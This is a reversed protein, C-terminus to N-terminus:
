VRSRGRSSHAFSPEIAAASTMEWTPGRGRRSSFVSSGHSSFWQGVGFKARSGLGPQHRFRIRVHALLQTRQQVPGVILQAFAERTSQLETGSTQTRGDAYARLSHITQDHLLGSGAEDVVQQGVNGVNGLSTHDDAEVHTALAIRECEVGSAHACGSAHLRQQEILDHRRRHQCPVDGLKASCRAHHDRGRVVRGGVVSVLDVETGASLNHRGGVGVNRRANILDIRGGNFQRSSVVQEDRVEASGLDVRIQGGRRGGAQQRIKGTDGGRVGRHM